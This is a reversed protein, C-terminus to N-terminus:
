VTAGPPIGNPPLVISKVRDFVAALSNAYAPDTAYGAKQVAVAFAKVDGQKALAYADQYRPKTSILHGWDRVSEAWSSYARFPRNVTIWKGKVYEKTPLKIVPKGAAEWAEGTFGFLNNAKLTLGSQGWGSEHAAQTITVDPHIGSRSQEDRAIPLMKLKFDSRADLLKKVKKATFASIILFLVGWLAVNEYDVTQGM